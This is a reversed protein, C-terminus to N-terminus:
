FRLSNPRKAEESKNNEPNNKAFRMKPPLIKAAPYGLPGLRRDAFGSNV